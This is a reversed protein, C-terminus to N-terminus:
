HVTNNVDLLIEKMLINIQQLMDKTKNLDIAVMDGNIEIGLGKTFNIDAHEFKQEIEDAKSQMATELNKMFINTKNMDITIKEGNIELGMTHLINESKIFDNNEKEVKKDINDNCATLFMLLGVLIMKKMM